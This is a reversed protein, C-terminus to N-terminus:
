WASLNLAKCRWYCKQKNVTKSDKTHLSSALCDAFSKPPLVHFSQFCM